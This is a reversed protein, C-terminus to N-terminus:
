VVELHHSVTSCSELPIRGTKCHHGHKTITTEIWEAPMSQRTEAEHAASTMSVYEGQPGAMFMRGSDEELALAEPVNLVSLNPSIQAASSGITELCLKYTLAATSRVGPAKILGMEGSGAGSGNQDVGANCQHL